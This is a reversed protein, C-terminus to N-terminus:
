RTIPSWPSSSTPSRRRPGCCPGPVGTKGIDHLIAAYRLLRLDADGLGMQRGVIEAMGAILRCHEATYGDKAEVASALATVTSFYSIELHELMEANQIVM